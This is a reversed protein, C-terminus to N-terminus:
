WDTSCLFGRGEAAWEAATKTPCGVRCGPAHDNPTRKAPLLKRAWNLCCAATPESVDDTWVGMMKLGDVARWAIEGPKEYDARKEGTHEEWVAWADDASAAIVTDTGNTFAHLDTSM